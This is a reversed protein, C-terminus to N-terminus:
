AARKPYRTAELLECDEAIPWTYVHQGPHRVREFPAELLVRDIWARGDEHPRRPPAGREVLWRASYDRGVKDGLIKGLHKRSVVLGDPALLITARNTRGVCRAGIAQYVTGVHGPMTVVGAQTTRALPDSMSLLGRVDPLASRLLRLARAMFWSEGNAAVDDLLVLRGLEVGTSVPISPLWRTIVAQSQPISFVAVGVLEAGCFLGVRLRAAPYSGSYHHRCVFSKATREDIEEVGFRRVDIPEGKPRYSDRRERWRQCGAPLTVDWARM